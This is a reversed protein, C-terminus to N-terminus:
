ACIGHILDENKEQREKRCTTCCSSAIGGEIHCRHGNKLRPGDVRLVHRISADLPFRDYVKKHFGVTAHLLGVRYLVGVRLKLRSRQIAYSLPPKAWSELITDRDPRFNSDWYNKIRVLGSIPNSSVSTEELFHARM